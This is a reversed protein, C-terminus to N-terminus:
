PLARDCALAAEEKTDFTGLHHQKGGYNATPKEATTLAGRSSVFSREIVAAQLPVCESQEAAAGSVRGM